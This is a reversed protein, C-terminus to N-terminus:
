QATRVRPDIWVYGLEVALHLAGYVIISILAIGLVVPADKNLVATVLLRGLGQRAFLNETIVTGSFLYGAQLSVMELVPLLSVPLTHRLLTQWRTLGKARAFAAFPRHSAEALGAEVVRAVSGGVNLGIASAPLWLHALTGQGTAPLWHLSLAFVLVLVTGSVMVPTSLMVALLGQTVYSVVPNQGHAALVGLPFGILVAALLASGTLALTAGLQQALMFGVSQGSMWSYGFDGSALGSLYALYQEGLPRDLGLATSRAAILAPSMSSQSLGAVAPDGPVLALGFFVVSVSVLVTLLFAGLRWVFYRAV